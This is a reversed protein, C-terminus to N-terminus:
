PEGQGAMRVDGPSYFAFFAAIDEFSKNRDRLAVMPIVQVTRGSMNDETDAKNAIWVLSAPDKLPLPRLPLGNVGSFFLAFGADRRLTRLSYRLDQLITETAPLSTSNRPSDSSRM